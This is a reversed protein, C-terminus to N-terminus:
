DIDEIYYKGDSHLINSKRSLNKKLLQIEDKNKCDSLRIQFSLERESEIDIWHLKEFFRLMNLSYDEKEAFKEIEKE